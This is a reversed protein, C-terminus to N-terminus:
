DWINQFLSSMIAQAWLARYVDEVDNMGDVM